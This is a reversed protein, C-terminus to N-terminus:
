GNQEINHNPRVLDMERIRSYIAERVNCDGHATVDPIRGAQHRTPLYGRNGLPEDVLEDVELNAFDEGDFQVLNLNDSNIVFNHLKAGVRAILSNKATSYSLDRRFIRWKTTLRGFAMKIRIRMQSLYFNYVDRYEHFQQSGSYPIIMNNQLPYANDGSCFFGEELQELWSKLGELRWFARADNM